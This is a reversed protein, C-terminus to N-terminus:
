TPQKHNFNNNKHDYVLTSISGNKFLDYANKGTKVKRLDNNKHQLTAYFCRLAEGHLIILLTKHKHNKAIIELSKLIREGCFIASEGGSPTLETYNHLIEIYNSNEVLHEIKEGQWEGLHRETLNKVVETNINLQQKCITASEIARGLGSSIILDINHHAVSEATQRSQEKGLETLESDLQGQFRRIKNWQTEGHRALYLTTKMYAQISRIKHAVRLM